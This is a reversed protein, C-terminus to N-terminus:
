ANAREELKDIIPLLVMLLAGVIFNIYGIIKDAVQDNTVVEDPAITVGAVTFILSLTVIYIYTGM